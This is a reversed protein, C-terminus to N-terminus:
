SHLYRKPVGHDVCDNVQRLPFCDTKTISNVKHYDTCFRDSGDSKVLLVCLSSWASSSPEAINKDLIYGVQSKLWARKAPNVRYTHQKIRTSDGVDIDHELVNTGTPEDSFLDLNSWILIVIDARQAGDLDSFHKDLRSLIESNKLCGQVLESSSVVVNDSEGAVEEPLESGSLALVTKLGSIRRVIPTRTM